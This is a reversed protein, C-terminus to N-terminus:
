RFPPPGYPGDVVGVVQGFTIESPHKLPLYGGLKGRRSMVLGHHKLDLLIQELFRKPIRQQEAIDSILLAEDAEEARALFILARLAYKAKQSIMPWPDSDRQSRM